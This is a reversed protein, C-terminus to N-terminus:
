RKDPLTPTLFFNSQLPKTLFESFHKNTKVIKGEIKQASTSFFTNFHNSILFPDTEEIEDVNLCTVTKNNRKNINVLLKIGEWTKLMNKKHDTFYHHYHKAKSIRSLKTVLNRYHKFENYLINKETSSKAKIITKYRINKKKISIIRRRTLWHKSNLRLEAKILKQIPAYTDLLMEIMLFFIIFSNDVDKKNELELVNYWNLNQIDELSIQQNFSKFNRQYINKNNNTKFQDISLFLFKALHDSISTIINKSLANESIDTSFINYILTRSHSTIRTPSTIRPVLSTSYMQDLFDATNHEKEYKLLNINFDGLSVIEKNKESLLYEILNNLLLSNFENVQM